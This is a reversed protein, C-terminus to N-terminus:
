GSFQPSLFQPWHSFDLGCAIASSHQLISDLNRPAINVIDATISVSIVASVAAGAIAVTIM